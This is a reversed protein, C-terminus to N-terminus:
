GGAQAPRAPPNTTQGGASVGGANGVTGPSPSIMTAQSRRKSLRATVERARIPDMAALLAAAKAEKMRDLLPL